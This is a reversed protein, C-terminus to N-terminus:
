KYEEEDIMYIYTIRYYKRECVHVVLLMIRKIIYEIIYFWLLGHYDDEVLMLDLM